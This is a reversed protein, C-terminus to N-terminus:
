SKEFSQIKPSRLPLHVSFRSGVGVKSSVLIYGGLETVIQHAVWLGLGQGEYVKAIRNDRCGFEFIRGMISPAIGEGHDEVTIVAEGLHSISTEIAVPKKKGYKIANCILNSALQEILQRDFFGVIPDIFRFTLPAGVDAAIAQAQTTLDGIIENLDESELHVAIKGTELYGSDFFFETLEKIRRVLCFIQRQTLGGSNHAKAALTFNLLLASLPNKIEHSAVRLRDHLSITTDPSINTCNM